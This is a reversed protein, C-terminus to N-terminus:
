GILPMNLDKPLVLGNTFFYNAKIMFVTKGINTSKVTM